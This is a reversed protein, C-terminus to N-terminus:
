GLAGICSACSAPTRHSQWPALGKYESAPYVIIAVTADGDVTYAVGGGVVVMVCLLLRPHSVGFVARTVVAKVGVVVV